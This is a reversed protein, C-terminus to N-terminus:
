RRLRKKLKLPRSRYKHIRFALYTFILGTLTTAAAFNNQIFSAAMFIATKLYISVWGLKPIVLVVKGVTQTVTIPDDPANNADGKTVITAMGGARNIEIVRHITPAPDGQRWYQIIDGVNIKDPPTQVTIAIDGVDLTPRM